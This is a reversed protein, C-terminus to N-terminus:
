GRGKVLQDALDHALAVMTMTPNWSGGQPWLTGGTIYVNKAGRLRYDLDVPASADSGIHLTSSEHILADVRRKRSIRERALTGRGADVADAKQVHLLEEASRFYERAAAITQTPRGHM